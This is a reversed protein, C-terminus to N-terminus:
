CCTVHQTCLDAEDQLSDFAETVECAISKSELFDVESRSGMDIVAPLPESWDDVLSESGGMADFSHSEIDAELLKM